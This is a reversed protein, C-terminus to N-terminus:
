DLGKILRSKAARTMKKVARERRMAESKSAFEESYVLIV